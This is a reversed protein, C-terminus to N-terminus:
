HNKLQKLYKDINESGLPPTIKIESNATSLDSQKLLIGKGSSLFLKNKDIVSQWNRTILSRDDLASFFYVLLRNNRTKIPQDLNCSFIDELTKNTITKTFMRVDNLCETLLNIQAPNLQCEFTAKQKKQIHAIKEEPLKSQLFEIYETFYISLIIGSFYPLQEDYITPNKKLENHDIYINDYNRYKKREDPSISEILTSDWLVNKLGHYNTIVHLVLFHEQLEVLDCSVKYIEDHIHNHITKDDWYRAKLEFLRISKLLLSSTHVNIFRQLRQFLPQMNNINSKNPCFYSNFLLFCLFLNRNNGYYM